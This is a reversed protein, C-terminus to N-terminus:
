KKGRSIKDKLIEYDEMLDQKPTVLEGSKGEGSGEIRMKEPATKHKLKIKQLETEAKGLTLIKKKPVKTKLIAGMGKTILGM